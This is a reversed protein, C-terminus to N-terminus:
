NATHAGFLLSDRSPFHQIVTRCTLSTRVRSALGSSKSIKSKLVTCNKYKYATLRRYPQLHYFSCLAHCTAHSIGLPFLSYKCSFSIQTTHVIPYTFAMRFHFPGQSYRKLILLMKIAPLLVLGRPIHWRNWTRPSTSIKYHLALLRSASSNV